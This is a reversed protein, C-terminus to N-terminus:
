RPFGLLSSVESNPICFVTTGSPLVSVGIKLKLYVYRQFNGQFNLMKNTGNVKAHLIVYWNVKAFMTIFADSLQLFPPPIVIQFLLEINPLFFKTTLTWTANQRVNFCCEQNQLFYFLPRFFFGTPQPSLCKSM